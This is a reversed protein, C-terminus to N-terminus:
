FADGLAIHVAMPALGFLPETAAEDQIAGKPPADGIHELVRFGVDLRLPGVPTEYRLGAGPSLHPATFRWRMSRNVHSADVFAVAGLPGSVTFRLELSEEWLLVGGLPRVCQAREADSTPNFCNVDGGQLLFGVPGHPGVERFGYGRNSNPGGSYFARFLLKHQDEVVQPDQPDAIMLPVGDVAERLTSGYDSPFLFGLSTRTALVVGPSISRYTRLEPRFRVDSVDGRFVYGAVQTSASLFIGNRPHLPDDRLDLTWIIEPYSILVRGFGDPTSSQQPTTKYVFPYNIQWNYSPTVVMRHSFFPREVGISAKIENYGIVFENEPKAEPAMPFLLPYVNYEGAVYSTTRGEFLLPQRLELRLRNHPFVHTPAQFRGLRTPFYTLGPRTDIQLRRMGGLFNRSEWGLRLTNTVELEDISAGIGARVTRLTGERVVVTLPVTGTEPHSTDQRIEASSFVGLRALARRADDIDSRSYRDGERVGLANRVLPEPIEELGAVRIRGVRAVPGATVVYRVSARHETLDVTSSPEVRAFAYGSNQLVQLLDERTQRYENEDFRDTDGCVGNRCLRVARKAEFAVDFPLSELGPLEVASTLVPQGPIVRVEVRVHRPDIRVVRGAVVKAEYYGRARYYREVRELDRAFVNADFIEYDFAVGEWLGLFKPSPATALKTELDDHDIGPYTRDPDPFEVDVASVVDGKAPYDQKVCGQLSLEILFAAACLSRAGVTM